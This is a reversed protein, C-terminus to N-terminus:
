YVRQRPNDTDGCSRCVSNFKCLLRSGGRDVGRWFLLYSNLAYFAYINPNDAKQIIIISNVIDTMFSNVADNGMTYKSFVLSSISSFPVTPGVETQFSFSGSARDDGPDVTDYFFRLQNVSEVVEKDNYYKALNDPTFNKTLKALSQSDTGIWKDGGNVELDLPYNKIKTM